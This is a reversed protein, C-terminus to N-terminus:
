EKLKADFAEMFAAVKKKATSQMVTDTLKFTYAGSMAESFGEAKYSSGGSEEAFWKFKLTTRHNQQTHTTTLLKETNDTIEWNTDEIQLSEAVAVGAARVDEVAMDSKSDQRFREFVSRGGKCGVAGMLMLGSAMVLLMKYMSM